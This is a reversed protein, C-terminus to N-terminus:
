RIGRRNLAAQYRRANAQHQAYTTAFNHRGSFDEKACMFIYNHEPANLVADITSKNPIRIPGPPLGTNKYTNYPSNVKLHKGTIRRLSFDGVAFKVTPDAQLKMGQNVRNMYLRAITPHEDKKNSEEEVISAVTAVQVPTLGLKKAKALREENWFEDRQAVLDKIVDDPHDTWYFEYTDPLFAAAFEASSKYDPDAGLIKQLSSKIQAPTAEIKAGLKKAFDDITRMNNLTVTVPTQNGTALRRATKLASQGPEILYSGHAKAPDGAAVYWLNYVMRGYNDGLATKLSDRVDEKSAGQPINVRVAAESDFRASLVLIVGIAIVAVSGMVWPIWRKM